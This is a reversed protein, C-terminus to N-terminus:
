YMSFTVIILYTFNFYNGFAPFLKSDDYHQIIEGVARLAIEYNNLRNNCLYHLSRPDTFAGNSATFDIAVAFHMQTGNRIYDLFTIEETIHIHVLELIGSNTYGSKHKQKGADILTLPPETHTKSSLSRLSTFCTGILKHSGNSRYDYCDIKINRDFDGNCLSTARMTIPRWTPHQTSYVQETKMVVSYSGDENSRSFVLFPDNSSFWSLKPLNNARLQLQVIKKCSAVEETVIVIEGCKRGPIGTLKGVFQRGSFSIIEALTTEFHGLYDKGQLDEDWVEFKMKQVTEFSYNMVIKKVWEPNLNDDITETRAIEYYQDQWSERMSIICFPDSKTIFDTNLLNRCSLTMEIQTTPLQSNIFPELMENTVYKSSSTNAWKQPTTKNFAM